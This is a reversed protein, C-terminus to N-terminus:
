SRITKQKLVAQWFFGNQFSFLFSTAKTESTAALVAAFVLAAVLLPQVFDWFDFELRVKPEDPKRSLNRTRRVEILDWLYKSSMGLLMAAFLLLEHLPSRQWVPIEPGRSLPASNGSFFIAITLTGIVALTLAAVKKWVIAARISLVLLVLLLLVSLSLFLEM